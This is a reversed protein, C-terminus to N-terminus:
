KPKWAYCSTSRVAHVSLPDQDVFEGEEVAEHLVKPRPQGGDEPLEVAVDDRRGGAEVTVFSEGYVVPAPKTCIVCIFSAFQM